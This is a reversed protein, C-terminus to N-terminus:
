LGFYLHFERWGQKSVRLFIQLASRRSGRVFLDPVFHIALRAIGAAFRVRNQEATSLVPPIKGALCSCFARTDDLAPNETTPWRSRAYKAFWPWAHAGANAITQPILRSVSEFRKRLLVEAQFELDDPAVALLAARDSADLDFVDLTRQPEHAYVDRLAGDRLLRGFVTTFDTKAM